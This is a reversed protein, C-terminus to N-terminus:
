TARACRASWRTAMWRRCASTSCSWTRASHDHSRSRRQCRRLRLAGRPGCGGAVRWATPRTGTTTSSSCAGTGRRGAPGADDGPAPEAPQRAAAAAPARRVRQGPGLGASRAAVHGGHLEVIRRVLRSASASGARRARRVDPEVQMFLDFVANSRSDASHRQRQRTVRLEAIRDRRRGLRGARDAATTRTSRPTTSCTSSRGAHLRM